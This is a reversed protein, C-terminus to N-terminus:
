SRGFERMKWFWRLRCIMDSSSFPLRSMVPANLAVWGPVVVTVLMANVLAEVVAVSMRQMPVSQRESHGVTAVVVALPAGTSREIYAVSESKAAAVDDRVVDNLKASALAVLESVSANLAASACLALAASRAEVVLATNLRCFSIVARELPSEEIAEWKSQHFLGTVALIAFQTYEDLVGPSRTSMRCGSSPISGEPLLSVPSSGCWALPKRCIYWFRLAGVSMAVEEMHVGNRETPRSASMPASRSPLPPNVNVSPEDRVLM